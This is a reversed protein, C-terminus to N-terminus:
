TPRRRSASSARAPRPRGSRTAAARAGRRRLEHSLRVPAGAAEVHFTVSEAGAEAYAPAWRDPQEIMLHIDLMKDTIKRISEVVPLGLTLNPVFHNDMVDVHIADSSPVSEIATQLNAFDASLISPM